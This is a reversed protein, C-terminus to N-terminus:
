EDSKFNYIPKIIKITNDGCFNYVVYNSKLDTLIDIGGVYKNTFDSQYLKSITDFEYNFKSSSINSKKVSSCVSISYFLFYISFFCILIKM